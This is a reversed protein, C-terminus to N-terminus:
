LRVNSSWLLFVWCKCKTVLIPMHNRESYNELRINSKYQKRWHHQLRIVCTFVLSLRESFVVDANANIERFPNCFIWRTKDLWYFNWSSETLLPLKKNTLEIRHVKFGWCIHSTIPSDIQNTLSISLQDCHFNENIQFQSKM